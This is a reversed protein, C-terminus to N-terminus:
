YVMGVDKLVVLAILIVKIVVYYGLEACTTFKQTVNHFFSADVIPLSCEHHLLYQRSDVVAMVVPYDM